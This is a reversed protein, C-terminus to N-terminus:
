DSHSIRIGGSGTDLEVRADGGGVEFEVFDRDKRHIRISDDLELRIGGSGTDATVHASAGTPIKLEVKGSGTDVRFRGSGMRTLEVFVSGSGTDIEISDAELGVAEVGGSGTDVNVSRGSVGELAVRGSGTDVLINDGECRTLTVRGSGTDVNIDGRSDEVTVRGSGTDVLLGGQHRAVAVTGSSSDLNLSGDTEGASIDGVGHLVALSGGSPVRVTVDAWLELGSGSGRVTIRRNSFARLAESLWGSDGGGPTFTTKSDSSLRPYVYTRSEELPFVVELVSGSQEIEVRERTGDRGDVRVVVEFSSGGYGEVRIEGILNRIELDSSSVQVTEEFAALLPSSLCLALILAPALSKTKSM